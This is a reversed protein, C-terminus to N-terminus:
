KRLIHPLLSALLRHAAQPLAFRRHLSALSPKVSWVGSALTYIFFGPSAPHQHMTRYPALVRKEEMPIGLMQKLRYECLLHAETGEAAYESGRNEYREGLRKTSKRAHKLQGVNYRNAEKGNNTGIFVKYIM